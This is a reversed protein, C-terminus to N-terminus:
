CPIQQQLPAAIVVLGTILVASSLSSTQRAPQSSQSQVLPTTDVRTSALVPRLPATPPIHPRPLALLPIPKQPELLGPLMRPLQLKPALLLPLLPARRILARVVDGGFRTYRVVVVAPQRPRVPQVVALAVNSSALSYTRPSPNVLWSFHRFHLADPLRGCSM